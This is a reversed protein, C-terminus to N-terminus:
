RYSGTNLVPAGEAPYPLARLGPGHKRDGAIALVAGGALLVGGAVSALGSDPFAWAPWGRWTTPGAAVLVFLAFQAVVYWEGRQGCWWAATSM